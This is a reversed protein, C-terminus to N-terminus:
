TNRVRAVFTRWDRNSFQLIINRSDRSDSVLVFGQEAAVTVCGSDFSALSKRWNHV